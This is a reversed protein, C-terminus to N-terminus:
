RGMFRHLGRLSGMPDVRRKTRPDSSSHNNPNNPDQNNNSLVVAGVGGTVMGAGAGADNMLTNFQNQNYAAQEQKILRQQDATLNANDIAAQQQQQRVDFGRNEFNEQRAENLARQQAELQAQTTAEGIDQGHAGLAGRLFGTTDRNIEAERAANVDAGTQAFQDGMGGAATQLAAVGRGGAGGTIAGTGQRVTGERAVAGQAVAQSPLQGNMGARLKALGGMQLLRDSHSQGVNLHVGARNMGAQGMSRDRAVDQDYASTGMQQYGNQIAYGRGNMAYEDAAPANYDSADIANTGVYGQLQKQKLEEDSPATLDDNVPDHGGLFGIGGAM